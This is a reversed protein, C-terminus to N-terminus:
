RLDQDGIEHGSIGIDFAVLRSKFRAGSLAVTVGDVNVGAMEEAAGVAARVAVEAKDMDVIAGNQVGGSVHHGVGIIRAPNTGEQRAILCTIKTTGIDLTAVLGNKPKAQQSHRHMM